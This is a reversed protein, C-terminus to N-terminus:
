IGEPKPNTFFPPVSYGGMPTGTGKDDQLGVINVIADIDDSEQEELLKKILKEINKAATERNAYSLNSALNILLHIM